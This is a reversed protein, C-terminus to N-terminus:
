VFLHIHRVFIFISLFLFECGFIFFIFFILLTLLLLIYLINIPINTVFKNNNFFFLFSFIIRKLWRLIENWKLDIFNSILWIIFVLFYTYTDISILLYHLFIWSFFYDIHCLFFVNIIVIFQPTMHINSNVVTM